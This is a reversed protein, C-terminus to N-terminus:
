KHGVRGDYPFWDISKSMFQHVPKKIILVNAKFPNLLKKRNDPIRCKKKFFSSILM